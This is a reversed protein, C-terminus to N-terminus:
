SPQQKQAQMMVLEEIAEDKRMEDIDISLDMFCRAAKMMKKFLAGFVDDFEGRTRCIGEASFWLNMKEGEPRVFVKTLVTSAMTLNAMFLLEEVNDWPAPMMVSVALLGCEMGVILTKDKGVAVCYAGSQKIADMGMGKLRKGIFPLTVSRAANEGEAKVEKKM